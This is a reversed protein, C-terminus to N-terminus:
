AQSFLKRNLWTLVQFVAIIPLIVQLLFMGFWGFLMLFVIPVGIYHQSVVAFVAIITLTILSFFGTRKVVRKFQADKRFM